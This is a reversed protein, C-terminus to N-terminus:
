VGPRRVQRNLLILLASAWALYSIVGRFAYVRYCAGEKSSLLITCMLPHSYDCGPVDATALREVSYDLHEFNPTYFSFRM